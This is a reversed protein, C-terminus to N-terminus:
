VGYNTLRYHRPKRDGTQESQWHKGDGYNLIKIALNRGIGLDAKIRKVVDKQLPLEGLSLIIDRIGKISKGRPDNEAIYFGRNIKFELFMSFPAYRTKDRTGLKYCVDTDKDDFVEDDTGRKLKQLKQLKQLVFSHDCLDQIATSGKYQSANGKATHHLIVVTFGVDRLAKFRSMIRQMDQSSNEDLYQSARLTDFILVAGKPMEKYWEWEEIDMRPPPIENTAHWMDFTDLNYRKARENVTLLSNEFDIYVTPTKITKCGLFEDGRAISEAMQLAATTKGVGSAGTFVSVAQKPIIEDIVYEQTIDLQRIRRISVLAKSLDLKAVAEKGKEKKVPIEVPVANDILRLIDDKKYGLETVLDTVDKLPKIGTNEPWSPWVVAKVSAAVGDLIEAVKLNATRGADDDDHMLVVEADKFYDAWEAKFTGAGATGSIAAIGMQNLLLAKFEGETVVISLLDGAKLRSLVDIPYLVADAGKVQAGKHQKMNWRGGGMDIPITFKSAWLGLSYRKITEITLGYRDQFEQLKSTSILANHAMDVDGQTNWKIPKAAQIQATTHSAPNGGYIRKLDAIAAKLDLNYLKVHLDPIDGGGCAASGFCHWKGDATHSFSPTKEEHLPCLGSGGGDPKAKYGKVRQGYYEQPNIKSRLEPEFTKNM